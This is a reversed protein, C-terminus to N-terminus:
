NAEARARIGGMQEVLSREELTKRLWGPADPGTAATRYVMLSGDQWAYAQYSGATATLGNEKTVDLNFTCWGLERDFEYIVHFSTTLGLMGLNWRAGKRGPEDIYLELSEIPGVEEVRAQLNVVQDIVVEPPAKVYAFGLTPWTADDRTIVEGALLAAEEEASLPIAAPPPSLAAALQLGTLALALM